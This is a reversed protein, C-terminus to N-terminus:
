RALEQSRALERVRALQECALGHLSHTMYALYWYRKPTSPDLQCQELAKELWESAKQYEFIETHYVGLAQAAQAAGIKASLEPSQLWAQWERTRLEIAQSLLTKKQEPDAPACPETLKSAADYLENAEIGMLLIDSRMGACGPSARATQTHLQHCDALIRIFQISRARFFCIALYELM